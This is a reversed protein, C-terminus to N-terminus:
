LTQESKAAMCNHHSMLCADSAVETKSFVLSVENIQMWAWHKSMVTTNDKKPTISIPERYAAVGITLQKRTFITVIASSMVRFITVDDRTMESLTSIVANTYLVFHRLRTQLHYGDLIQLAGHQLKSDGSIFAIRGSKKGM